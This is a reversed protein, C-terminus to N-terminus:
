GPNENIVLKKLGKLFIKLLLEKKLIKEYGGFWIRILKLISILDHKTLSFVQFAINNSLQKMYYRLWQEENEFREGNWNKLGIQECFVSFRKKRFLNGESYYDNFIETIRQGKNTGITYFRDIVYPDVDGLMDSACADSDIVTQEANLSLKKNDNKYYDLLFDGSSSAIDGLWTVIDTNSDVLPFLNKVFLLFNPLPSVPEPYNRADLGALVHAIDCMDGDPLRIEQHDHQYIYPVQGVRADGFVRDNDRYTVMRHKPQYEGKHYRTVKKTYIGAPQDNLIEVIYRQEVKAAGRILESNWGWQDYFIKRLRSIM